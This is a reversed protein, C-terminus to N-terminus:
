PIKSYKTWIQWILRWLFFACKCCKYLLKSIWWFWFEDFNYMIIFIILQILQNSPHDTYTQQCFIKLDQWFLILQSYKDNFQHIKHINPTHKYIVSSHFGCINFISYRTSIQILFIKTSPPSMKNTRFKNYKNTKLIESFININKIYIYIYKKKTLCNQYNWVM